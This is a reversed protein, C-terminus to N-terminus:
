DREAAKQRIQAIFEFVELPALLVYSDARTDTKETVIMRLTELLPVEVIVLKQTEMEPKLELIVNMVREADYSTEFFRIPKWAPFRHDPVILFRGSKGRIAWAKYEKPFDWIALPQPQIM